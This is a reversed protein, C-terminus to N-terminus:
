DQASPAPASNLLQKRLRWDPLYQDMYARFRTNHGAELLHVLEHVLVYEIADHPRKALELSLWIRRRVINCSGWRTRMKRIGWQAASQGIVPQWKELLAPVRDRLAARYCDDLLRRRKEIGTGPRVSMTLELAERVVQQPGPREIVTLRHPQGLFFHREGTVYEPAAPAEYAAFRAQKERIWDLRARLFARVHQDPLHVPVSVRVRGDPPSVVLRLYKVRKRTLQLNVGEINLDRRATRMTIPDCHLIRM